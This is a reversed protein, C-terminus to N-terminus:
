LWSKKSYNSVNSIKNEVATLATTTALNTPILILYKEKVENIKGNISTNTAMNNISPIKHQINKIKANYVDKWILMM